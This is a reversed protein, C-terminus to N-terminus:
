ILQQVNQFLSRSIFAHFRFSFQSYLLVLYLCLLSSLVAHLLCQLFSALDIAQCTLLITLLLEEEAIFRSREALCGNNKHVLYCPGVEEQKDISARRRVVMKRTFAMKREFAM